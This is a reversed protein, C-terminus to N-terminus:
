PFGGCHANTAAHYPRSLCAAIPNIRNISLSMRSRTALPPTSRLPPFCRTDGLWRGTFDLNVGRTGRAELLPEAEIEPPSMRSGARATTFNRQAVRRRITPSRSRISVEYENRARSTTILRALPPLAGPHTQDRRGAMNARAETSGCADSSANLGAHCITTSAWPRVAKRIEKLASRTHVSFQIRSSALCLSPLGAAQHYLKESQNEM